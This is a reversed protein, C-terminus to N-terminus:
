DPTVNVIAMLLPRGVICTHTDASALVPRPECARDARIALSRKPRQVDLGSYQMHSRGGVLLARGGRVVSSGHHRCNGAGAAPDGTATVYRGIPRSGPDSEGFIPLEGIGAAHRGDSDYRNARPTQQGM